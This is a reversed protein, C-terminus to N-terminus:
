WRCFKRVPRPKPMSRANRPQSIEWAVRWPEFQPLSMTTVTVMAHQTTPNLTPMPVKLAGIRQASPWSWLWSSSSYAAPTPCPPLRYQFNQVSWLTTPVWYRTSTNTSKPTPPASAMIIRVWSIVGCEVKRSGFVYLEITVMWPMTMIMAVMMMTVPGKVLKMMGIMIPALSM